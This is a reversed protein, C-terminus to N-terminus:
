CTRVTVLSGYSLNYDLNTSGSSVIGKLTLTGLISIDLGDDDNGTLSGCTITLNGDAVAFFGDGVNGDSTIKTLSISGDTATYLGVGGNGLFTNVGTMTIGGSASFVSNNFYAGTDTNENATINNTTIAGKSFIELGRYSNDNFTNTGTLKVLQPAVANGNDILVGNAVILTGNSNATINNLTVAGHSALLLGEYANNNLTYTGSLTIAKVETLENDLELGPGATNSNATTSSLTIAGRSNAVLGGSYNSSFNNTGTITINTLHAPDGHNALNVGYGSSAGIGNGTAM